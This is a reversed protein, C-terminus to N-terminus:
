KGSNDKEQKKVDEVHTMTFAEVTLKKLEMFSQFLLYAVVLRLIIIEADNFNRFFDGQFFYQIFLGKSLSLSTVTLAPTVFVSLYHQEFSEIFNGFTSRVNIPSGKFKIKHILTVVFAYIGLIVYVLNCELCIKIGNLVYDKLFYYLLCAVILALAIVIYKVDAKKM